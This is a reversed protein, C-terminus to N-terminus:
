VQRRQSQARGWARSTAKERALHRVPWGRFVVRPYTATWGVVLM